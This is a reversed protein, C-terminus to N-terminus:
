SRIAPESEYIKVETDRSVHISYDDGEVTPPNSVSTHMFYKNAIANGVAAPLTFRYLGPSNTSDVESMSLSFVGTVYSSGNWYKGSTSQQITLTIFATQGTLGLGTSPDGVFLEIIIDEGINWIHPSSM